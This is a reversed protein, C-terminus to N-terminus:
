NRVVVDANISSSVSPWLPSTTLDLGRPSIPTKPIQGQARAVVGTVKFNATFLTFELRPNVRSNVNCRRETQCSTPAVCREAASLRHTGILFSPATWAGSGFVCTHALSCAKGCSLAQTLLLGERCVAAPCPITVGRGVLHHHPEEERGEVRAQSVPCLGLCSAKIPLAPWPRPCHKKRRLLQLTHCKNDSSVWCDWVQLAQLIKFRMSVWVCGGNM